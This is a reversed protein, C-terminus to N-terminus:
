LDSRGGADGEKDQIGVDASGREFCCVYLTMNAKHKKSREHNSWAGQSQFAKDCAACYFDDVPPEEEEEEADEGSAEDESASDDALRPPVVKQWDQEKYARAHAERQEARAAAAEKLDRMQREM